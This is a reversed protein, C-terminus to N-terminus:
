HLKPVMPLHYEGLGCQSSVHNLLQLFGFVYGRVEAEDAPSKLEDSEGAPHYVQIGANCQEYCITSTCSVQASVHTVAYM